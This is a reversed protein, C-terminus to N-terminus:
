NSSICKKCRNVRDFKARAIIPDHFQMLIIVTNFTETIIHKTQASVKRLLFKRFLKKREGVLTVM